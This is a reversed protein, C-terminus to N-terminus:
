RLFRDDIKAEKLMCGAIAPCECLRTHIQRWSRVEEPSAKEYNFPSTLGEADSLIVGIRHWRQTSGAFRIRRNNFKRNFKQRMTLM